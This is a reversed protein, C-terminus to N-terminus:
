LRRKAKWAEAFFPNITYTHPTRTVGYWGDTPVAGKGHIATTVHGLTTAIFDATGHAAIMEEQAATGRLVLDDIFALMSKASFERKREHMYTYVDDAADKWNM